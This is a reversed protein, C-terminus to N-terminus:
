RISARRVIQSARPARWSEIETDIVRDLLERIGLAYSAPPAARRNFIVVYHIGDRRQRALASTGPFGGTHSLNGPRSGKLELGMPTGAISYADLLKLLAKTSAILRGTSLHAELDWGGYACDVETGPQFVSECSRGSDYWPERPHRDARRTRGMQVNKPDIGAPELVASVLFDFYAKGCYKEIIMGLFFYGENSYAVEEGPTFQLTHGLIWRAVDLRSPPSPVGMSEAIELEAFTLDGASDSDWGGRHELLHEVTIQRLRRDGLAPFPKIKLLGSGDGDLDFVRDDYSIVDSDILRRVAAATFPKTLSAIRMLADPALPAKREPDSWGYSRQLVVEGDKMVGLLGATIQNKQMYTTMAWDFPALGPVSEGGWPLSPPEPLPKVKMRAVAQVADARLRPGVHLRDWDALVLYALANRHESIDFDASGTGSPIFGLDPDFARALYDEAMRVVRHDPLGCLKYCVAIEAVIDPKSWSLIELIHRDFYDLIWRHKAPPLTRQYYHSDGIIFHTLGYLKNQYDAAPIQGDGSAMFVAKFARTYENELDVVGIRKLWFVMNSTQAAYPRIVEPDLLFGSWDVGKLHRLAADYKSRFPGEHLGLDRLKQATYLLRRHFLMEKRSAFMEKRARLVETIEIRAAHWSRSESEVYGEMELGDLHRALNDIWQAADITVADLNPTRGTARYIRVAFHAQNKTSLDDFQSEYTRRIVQAVQNGQDGRYPALVEVVEHDACGLLCISALLAPAIFRRM